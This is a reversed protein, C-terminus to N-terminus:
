DRPSPSTYLLCSYGLCIDWPSALPQENGSLGGQYDKGQKTNGAVTTVHGTTLDCLRLTHNGTDCIYLLDPQVLCTGQPSNFEAKTADKADLYGRRGCGVIM